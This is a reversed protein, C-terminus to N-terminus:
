CEEVPAYHLIVSSISIYAIGVQTGPLESPPASVVHYTCSDLHFTMQLVEGQVWHNCDSALSPLLVGGRVFANGKFAQLSSHMRPDQAHM